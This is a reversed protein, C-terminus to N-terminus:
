RQLDGKVEADQRISTNPPALLPSQMDWSVPAVLHQHETGLGGEFHRSILYREVEADTIPEMRVEKKSSNAMLSSPATGPKFVMFVTLLAVGMAGAWRWKPEFLGEFYTTVREWLLGRASHRLLEQRQRQQFQHVFDEVFDESPKEYRKLRLLRQIDEFDSM